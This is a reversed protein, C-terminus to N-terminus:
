PILLVVVKRRDSAARLLMSCMPELIAKLVKPANCRLYKRKLDLQSAGESAWDFDIQVSSLHLFMSPYTENILNKRTLQDEQALWQLDSQQPNRVNNMYLTSYPRRTLCVHKADCVMGTNAHLIHLAEIQIQHNVSLLATNVAEWSTWKPQFARNHSQTWSNHHLLTQLPYTPRARLLICRYIM